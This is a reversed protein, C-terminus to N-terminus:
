WRGYFFTYILYSDVYKAVDLVPWSFLYILSAKQDMLVLELSYPLKGEVSGGLYWLRLVWVILSWTQKRTSVASVFDHNPAMKRLSWCLSDSSSWFNNVNSHLFPNGYFVVIDLNNIPPLACFDTVYWPLNPIISDLFQGCRQHRSAFIPQM